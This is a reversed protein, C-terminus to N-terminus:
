RHIRRTIFRLMVRLVLKEAEILYLVGFSGSHDHTLPLPIQSWVYKQITAPDYTLPLGEPSLKVATHDYGDAGASSGPASSTLPAPEPLKSLDMPPLSKMVQQVAKRAEAEDDVM